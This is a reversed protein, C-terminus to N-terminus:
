SRKRSTNVADDIVGADAGFNRYLFRGHSPLDRPLALHRHRFNYDSVWCLRFHYQCM